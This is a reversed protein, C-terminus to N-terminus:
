FCSIGISGSSSSSSSPQMLGSFAASQEGFLNHAMNCNVGKPCAGNQLDLFLCSVTLKPLAGSATKV